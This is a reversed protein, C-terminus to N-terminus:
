KRKLILSEYPRLYGEAFADMDEYNGLLKEYDEAKRKDEERGDWLKKKEGSLNSYVVIEDEEWVRRYAFILADKEDLFEIKGLSVAKEKKRIEILKRYYWLVSTEDRIEAEVNINERHAPLSIWPQGQSFGANKEGNWQMPTRGNDRSRENLIHLAEEKTKGHGTMIGYYNISEVDRYQSIDTFHANTMGLEEGQYIYPTGRMMHVMAALMKASEKWYTTEDGLRSVIRPQDHNCWFVANWGRNKEMGLQWTKLIDTLKEYDTPQIEWKEGNKYDAKLHHFSFCMSLEKEEPDTYRIGNELTTSSMEGVTVMDGIGTDRVLEKLYEHVHSGDTYFRRGDGQHDDKFEEPKSILNVVDFRFGKVGKEKWFGIVKKLEERIEPNRWNLDAQTKDFLHLYWKGLSPVYEWASGGFKSVWNSPPTDPTGDRFIYYDQYKQEGALAKQFWKHETSTHNFVMDLM